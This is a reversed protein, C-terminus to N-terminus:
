VRRQLFYGYCVPQGQLRLSENAVDLAICGREVYYELGDQWFISGGLCTTCPELAPPDYGLTTAGSGGCVPCVGLMDLVVEIAAETPIDPILGQLLVRGDNV